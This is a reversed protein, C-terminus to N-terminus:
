IAINLEKRTKLPLKRVVQAYSHQIMDKLIDPSMGAFNVTNWHTKNMHYGPTVQPYMERWFIAQAPEAKLNMSNNEAISALCFIKGVVRFALTDNDFPLDETVHPLALCRERVWEVNM